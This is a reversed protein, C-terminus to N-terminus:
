EAARHHRLYWGDSGHLPLLDLLAMMVNLAGLLFLWHTTPALLLLMTGLLLNTVIGAAFICTRASPPQLRIDGAYRPPPAQNGLLRHLMQEMGLLQVYSGLPLWGICFLTGGVRRRFLVRGFADLMLSAKLVQVGFWRAALLHATEHLAQSALYGGALLLISTM